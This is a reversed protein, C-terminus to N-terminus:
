WVPALLPKHKHCGKRPENILKSRKHATLSISSQQCDRELYDRFPAGFPRAFASFKTNKKKCWDRRATRERSARERSQRSPSQQCDLSICNAFSQSKTVNQFAKTLHIKIHAINSNFSKCSCAASYWKGNIVKVTYRVQIEHLNM